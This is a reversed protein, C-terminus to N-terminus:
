TSLRVFLNKDTLLTPKSLSIVRDLNRSYALSQLLASIDLSQSPEEPRQGNGMGINLLQVLRLTNESGSCDHSKVQPVESFHVVNQLVVLEGVLLVTVSLQLCEPQLGVVLYTTLINRHYKRQLRVLWLQAQYPTTITKNLDCLSRRCVLWPKTNDLLIDDCLQCTAYYSSSLKGTM